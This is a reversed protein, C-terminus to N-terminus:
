SGESMGSPEPKRNQWNEDVEDPTLVIPGNDNYVNIFGGDPHEIAMTYKGNGVTQVRAVKAVESISYRRDGIKIDGWKAVEKPDTVAADLKKKVVEPDVWKGNKQYSRIPPTDGFASSRFFRHSIDVEPGVAREILARVAKPDDQTNALATGQGVEYKYAAELAPIMGNLVQPNISVGAQERVTESFKTLSVEDMRSGLLMQRSLEKDQPYTRLAAQVVAAGDGDKTVSNVVMRYEDETTGMALVDLQPAIASWQGNKLTETLNVVFPSNEDLRQQSPAVGLDTQASTQAKIEQRIAGVKEEIPADTPVPRYAERVAANHEMAYRAPNSRLATERERMQTQAAEYLAIATSRGREIGFAGGQQGASRSIRVLDNYAAVAEEHTGSTIASFQPAYQTTVQVREIANRYNIRQSESGIGDREMAALRGKHRNLEESPMSTIGAPIGKAAANLEDIDNSVSISIKVQNASQIQSYAAAMRQREAFAEDPTMGRVIDQDGAIKEDYDAIRQEL